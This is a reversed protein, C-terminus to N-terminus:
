AAALIVLRSRLRRTITLRTPRQHCILPRSAPRDDSRRRFRQKLRGPALLLAGALELDEDARRRADALGVLHQLLGAGPLFVAVIDDDADDLGVAALFGFRQEFPEFDDRASADLVVALASSSISRSAMM